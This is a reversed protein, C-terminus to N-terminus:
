NAAVTSNSKENVEEQILNEYVYLFTARKEKVLGLAADNYYPYQKNEQEHVASSLKDLEKYLKLKREDSWIEAGKLLLKLVVSWEM